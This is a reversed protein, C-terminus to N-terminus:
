VDVNEKMGIQLRFLLPLHDSLSPRGAKDVLPTEDIRNLIRVDILADMLEPRVLVQDVINWFYMIQVAKQYFTTGPPASTRDGLHAWMPNYFFRYERAAVTRTQKRALAKTMVGHLGAAAVVAKDFPNMNLDGVLLTRTHGFHEEMKIIDRALNTAEALQDEDSWNSKDHFHVAALLIEARNPIAIRRITLRRSPDDFAPIIHSPDGSTYIKIKESYTEPKSLVPIQRHIETEDLESEALVLIDVRYEKIALALEKVLSQKALNWFFFTLIESM